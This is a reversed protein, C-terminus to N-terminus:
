EGETYHGEIIVRFSSLDSLDDQVLMELREGEEVRLAVGLKGQSAFTLRVLINYEGKKDADSYSIDYALSGLDSNLKADFINWYDVFEGNSDANKKRFLIGNDLGDVIDGFYSSDPLTTTRMSIIIRTIDIPISAENDIYNIIPDGSGDVNLDRSLEFCVASNNVTSFIKDTPLNMTIVNGNISNIEGFYSAPNDSDQFCGVYDGVSFGASSVLNIDYSGSVTDAALFHPVSDVPRSLYNILPRTVQDQVNVDFESASLSVSTSGLASIIDDEVSYGAIMSTIIIFFLAIGLTIFITSNNTAM